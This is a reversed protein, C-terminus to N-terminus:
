WIDTRIFDPLVKNDENDINEENVLVPVTLALEEESLNDDSRKEKEKEHDKNIMTEANRNYNAFENVLQKFYEAKQNDVYSVEDFAEPLVVEKNVWEFIYKQFSDYSCHYKVGESKKFKEYKIKSITIGEYFWPYEQRSIHKRFERFRKEVNIARGFSTMKLPEGAYYRKYYECYTDYLVSKKCVEGDKIRCIDRVFAQVIEDKTDTSRLVRYNKSYFWKKGLETFVFRFWDITKDDFDFTANPDFRVDFAGFMQKFKIYKRHNDTIFVFPVRNKIYIKGAFKPKKIRQKEGILIQKIKCISAETTPLDGLETVNIGNRNLGYTYLEILNTNRLLMKLSYNINKRESLREIFDILPKHLSKKAYIILPQDLTFPTRTIFYCLKAFDTLVDNNGLTLNYLFELTNGRPTKNIARHFYQQKERLVYPYYREQIRLYNKMCCYARNIKQKSAGSIFSEDGILRLSKDISSVACLNSDIMCLSAQEIPNLLQVSKNYEEENEVCFEADGVIGKKKQVLRYRPGFDKFDSIFIM